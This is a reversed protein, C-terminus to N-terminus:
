AAAGDSPGMLAMLPCQLADALKRMVAPSANREGNELRHILTRDVGARDALASKSLGSRRRIETLAARNLM